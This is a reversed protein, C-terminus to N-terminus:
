KEPSIQRGAVYGLTIYSQTVFPETKYSKCINLIELSKKTNVYQLIEKIGEVTLPLM